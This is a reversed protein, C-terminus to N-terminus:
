GNIESLERVEIKNEETDKFLTYAIVLGIVFAGISIAINVVFGLPLGNEGPKIFSPVAFIGQGSLQYLVSNTAGMIGGAIGSLVCTIVFFKKRALLIGYLAPETVGVLFASISASYGISKLKTDKTRLAIGLVIGAVAFSHGAIMPLIVDYGMSFLNSFAIPVVAGHIGLLVMPLWFAGLLASVITSNINYTYLIMQGLAQSLLVSIPGIVLYTVAVTITLTFFPVMFSKLLKPTVKDVQKEVKSGVLIALIAPIITTTYSMLLVPIGAFAIFVPTAFITDAFLIYLPEQSMIQSVTPYVISAGIAMATFTNMNFKKSATYSIFIPLFYYISDAATFLLRYTGSDTIMWGATTFLALLGKLIGAASMVGVMPVMVTIFVDLVRSLLTKKATTEEDIETYGQADGESLLPVLESYIDKVDNGIVVQYQGGGQVVKLVGETDNLEDTKAKSEDKLSFRLRTACHILKDVNEKGGVLNLIKKALEQNSM